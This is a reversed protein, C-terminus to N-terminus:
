SPRGWRLLEAHRKFEEDLDEAIVKLDEVTLGLRGLSGIQPTLLNVGVSGRGKLTCLLNAQAVADVVPLHPGHYGDPAHHHRVAALVEEPFHWREGVRAGLLTHDFGLVRQEQEVLPRSPNLKEMVERFHKHFCQDELILGVDHLLGALFAEEFAGMGSRLAIFRSALATSVMHTWLGERTYRGLSAPQRFLDAIVATTALNAVAKMGLYTVARQVTAAKTRLGYAASNVARLVRAGLSPDSEVLRSLEATGLAPDRAAEVIRMAVQPLTSLETVRRVATDLPIPTAPGRVIPYDLAM